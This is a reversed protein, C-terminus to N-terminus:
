AKAADCYCTLREDQRLSQHCVKSNLLKESVMATCIDETPQVQLWAIWLPCSYVHAACAISSM